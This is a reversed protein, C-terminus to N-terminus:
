FRPYPYVINPDSDDENSDPLVVPEDPDPSAPGRGTPDGKPTKPRKIPRAYPRYTSNSANEDLGSDDYGGGVAEMDNDNLELSENNEPDIDCKKNNDM